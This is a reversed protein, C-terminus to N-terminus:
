VAELARRCFEVCSAVEKVADSNEPVSYEMEISAPFKLKNKKMLQLCAQQIATTKGSGLFGGTLFLKM